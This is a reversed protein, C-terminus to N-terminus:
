RSYYEVVLQESFEGPFPIEHREPFHILKGTFNDADLEVYPPPVIKSGFFQHLVMPIKRSRERVSVVDGPSVQFSPINVRKGNVLIHGHNVIQRAAWITPAFNMRMCMADLRTELLGVFVEGTVGARMRQAREFTHRFQKESIMGYYARLKQKEALHLGFDSQKARRGQGHQGPRYGKRDNPNRKAGYLNIGFRRSLRDKPGRYRSM